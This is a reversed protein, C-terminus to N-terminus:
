GRKAMETREYRRIEEMWDMGGPVDRRLCYADWVPGFPLTKAEEMLALRSTFDGERELSRLREAPELLAVLLAKIMARMGIVWAAVRNISADFYDLGIHVRSLFEGRVLERAISRVDDSFVVVHDSDWRIGRSVHLLIEDLFALVASIKDAISETPHFHGTDLCVMKGHKMAYGLYFEHSGVVYSESGIGFLKSELSDLNGALDTDFSFMEDLSQELRLRPGKRDAPEDKAGDPIWVNTVCPTGLELGIAEGIRRCAAGHEVWFRRIGDDPHSLTLGSAANPHAFFTPNFDIGIGLAKAWEVWTRFHSFDLENREVGAGDTEAYSAHLNLRHSGPVLSYAKRLDARLEKANRARGPYNGTAMLGGDSLSGAHEFGAVDDGQWCHMSVSIGALTELARDADVGYAAYQERALEYAKEINKGQETMEIGGTPGGAEREPRGIGWLRVVGCIILWPPIPGSPRPGEAMIQKDRM